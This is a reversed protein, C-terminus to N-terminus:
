SWRGASGGVRGHEDAARDLWLPAPLAAFNESARDLATREEAKKRHRRLVGGLLLLTRGLELPQGPSEHMPVAARLDAIAAERDGSAAQV